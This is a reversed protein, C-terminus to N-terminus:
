SNLISLIGIDNKLLSSLSNSIYKMEEIELDNFAVLYLGFGCSGFAYIFANGDGDDGIALSSPIWKQIMYALNMEICGKAGWIRIYKQECLFLEIETAEKILQIYDKPIEITSFNDLSKIDIDSSPSKKAVIRYSSSLEFM